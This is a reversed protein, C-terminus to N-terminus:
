LVTNDQSKLLLKLLVDGKVCKELARCLKGVTCGHFGEKMKWRELMQHIKEELGDRAYDHEIADIEMETLDLRRACAKWKGGMNERVLHLHDETVAHDEYKQLLEKYKNSSSSSCVSSLSSESGRFHMINNNGIQIGSAQTISLSTSAEPQPCIVPASIRLGANSEPPASEPTPYHAVGPWSQFRNYPPQQQQYREYQQPDAGSLQSAYDPRHQGDFHGLMFPQLCPEEPASPQPNPKTWSQVSSVQQPLDVGQRHSAMPESPQISHSYPSLDPQEVRAYSGCKHYNLEQALKQELNAPSVPAADAQLFSLDEVSAEVPGLDSSRLPTPSDRACPPYSPLELGTNAMSQDSTLSKMKEVLESPGEYLDMLGQLDEEVDAQLKEEYFPLFSKYSEKFTPRKQPDQDWSAKMLSVMEPPADAPILAEDPRDGKRVCQCIQDESRANEYPEQSTLIVWVVIAFSYVDSKETSRTNISELHEPAMYCLTGAARVSTKRSVGMRSQRRTEDRTLKSWTQHTALGLDAIKVHFLEDVLINEPKLDKHIVHNDTLYVMGELIELIIRGKISVPVSVRELMALLNGKPILEMVLSYDGDELIVGLLKVVREHNLRNMLSGEELLSPKQENRPPGTYVTKLVVHGLTKHYCLYVEGFGGYDLREKRILDSSKMYIDLSSATAM